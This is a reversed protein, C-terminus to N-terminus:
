KGDNIDEMIDGLAKEKAEAKLKKTYKKLTEKHKKSREHNEFQKLSKFDKRCCECRWSDPEEEEESSEASIAAELNNLAMCIDDDANTNANVEINNSGDGECSFAVTEVNEEDDGQNVGNEDIITVDQDASIQDDLNEQNQNINKKSGKGKGKRKGKKKRGGGYDYDDDYLDALRTRGANLDAAEQEAIRGEAETRWEEKAAAMDMKRQAVKKKREVEKTAQERLSHERRAKVRPDRKKVFGM